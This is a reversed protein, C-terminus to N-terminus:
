SVGHRQTEVGKHSQPLSETPYAFLAYDGKKLLVM